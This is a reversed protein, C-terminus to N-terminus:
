SAIPATRNLPQASGTRLVAALDEFVQESLDLRRLRGITNEFDFPASGLTIAGDQWMAYRVEARGHKPQGASGPNVVIRGPLQRIFPIHTHGVLEVDIDEDVVDDGWLDSEQRRYEFLPDSPAAHCMLILRGDAATSETLPLSRLYKRPEEGLVSRTYRSTEEAMARFRASCRPDEDFGVAHDHNGRVVLSAKERVFAIVEAPNPGYNVLDGLVWLRDFDRPLAEVAELNGHLDSVILIRM